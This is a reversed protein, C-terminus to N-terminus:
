DLRVAEGAGSRAGPGAAVFLLVGGLVLVLLTQPAPNDGLPPRLLGATVLAVVAVRVALSPAGSLVLALLGGAGFGVASFIDPSRGPAALQVLELGIGLLVACGFGFVGRGLGSGTGSRGALTAFVAGLLFPHWSRQLWLQWGPFRRFSSSLRQTQEWLDGPVQLGPLVAWAVLCAALLLALVNERGGGTLRLWWGRAARRGRVEWLRGVAAGCAAGLVDVVLDTASTRRAPLALQLMEVTLSVLAAGLLVTWLRGHRGALARWGALGFPLFLAVNGLVDSWLPARGREVFPVWQIDAAARQLAAFDFTPAFPLLTWWGILMMTAVWVVRHM